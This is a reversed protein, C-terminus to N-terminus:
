LRPLCEGLSCGYDEKQLAATYEEETLEGLYEGNEYLVLVLYKEETLYRLADRLPRDAAIVIRREEVGRRLSKERTFPTKGYRGGGFAGATLMLAFFLATFAPTSFCSWVFYALVGGAILFTVVRCIIRAKKEGLASRILLKLIRGGDLPYAPLLNVAFLSLSIWAATDTYAYTEPYLWWLAIFLLASAGNALPGALLVWIEQKKGIGSIDGSVVAGYPMLVITDLSYGYRRAAFAHACEHIVAAIAAALFLLLQGVFASLLGVVLFLPHIRFRFKKLDM